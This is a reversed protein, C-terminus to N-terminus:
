FKERKKENPRMPGNPTLFIIEFCQVEIDRDFTLSPLSPALWSSVCSVPAGRFATLDRRTCFFVM